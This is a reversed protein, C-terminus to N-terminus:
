SFTVNTTRKNHHLDALGLKAAVFSVLKVNDNSGSRPVNRRGVRGCGTGHANPRFGNPIQLMITESKKDITM